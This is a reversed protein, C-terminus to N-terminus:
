KNAEEKRRQYYEKRKRLIEERHTYYYTRSCNRCKEKNQSYYKRNRENVEQKHKKYYERSCRKIKDPYKQRYRYSYERNKAKRREDLYLDHILCLESEAGICTELSCNLCANEVNDVNNM